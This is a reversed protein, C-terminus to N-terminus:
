TLIGAATSGARAALASIAAVSAESSDAARLERSISIAPPGIWGFCWTMAGM